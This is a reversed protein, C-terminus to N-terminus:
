RERYYVFWGLRTKRTQPSSARMGMFPGRIMRRIAARSDVEPSKSLGMGRRYDRQWNMM